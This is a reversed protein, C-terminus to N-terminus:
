LSPVHVHPQLSRHGHHGTGTGAVVQMTLTPVQDPNPDPDPDTEPNAHLDALITYRESTKYYALLAAPTGFCGPQLQGLHDQTWPSARM